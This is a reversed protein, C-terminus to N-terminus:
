WLDEEAAAAENEMDEMIFRENGLVPKNSNAPSDTMSLCLTEVVAVSHFTM